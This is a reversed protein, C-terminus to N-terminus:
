IKYGIHISVIGDFLNLYSVNVFGHQELILKLKEQNPFLDISESLYNYAKRNKAILNGIFPLVIKKYQKYIESVIITNPSSFELCYYIGGPKIVRLAEKISKNINTINRLCFSIIYKDFSNKKFKLNEANGHYFFVNNEKISLKGINLM